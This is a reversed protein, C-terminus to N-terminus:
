LGEVDGARNSECRDEAYRCRRHSARNREHRALGGTQATELRCLARRPCDTSRTRGRRPRITAATPPRRHARLAPPASPPRRRGDDRRRHHPATPRRAPRAPTRGRRTPARARARMCRGSLPPASPRRRARSRGPRRSRHPASVTEAAMALVSRTACRAAPGAEATRTTPPSSSAGTSSSRGSTRCPVRSNVWRCHTSSPMTASDSRRLAASAGRGIEGSALVTSSATPARRRRMVHVRLVSRCRRRQVVRSETMTPPGPVPLVYVTAQRSAASTEAAPASRGSRMPSAAGVPLAAALIVSAIVVTVPCASSSRPSEGPATSCSPARCATM